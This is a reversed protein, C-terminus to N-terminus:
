LANPGISKSKGLDMRKLKHPGLDSSITMSGCKKQVKYFRKILFILYTFPRSLVLFANKVPVGITLFINTTFNLKFPM